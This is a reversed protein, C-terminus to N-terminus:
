DYTPNNYLTVDITKDALYDAVGSTINNDLLMKFMRLYMMQARGMAMIGTYGALQNGNYDSMNGWKNGNKVLPWNANRESFNKILDLKAKNAEGGCRIPGGNNKDDMYWYGRTYNHDMPLATAMTAAEVAPLKGAGYATTNNGDLGILLLTSRMAIELAQSVNYSVGGVSITADFPIYNVDVLNTSRTQTSGELTGTTTSWVDLLKVYETAFDGITVVATGSQNVAISISEGSATSVTVTGKRSGANPNNSDSIMVVSEDDYNGAGATPNLSIWSDETSATWEALAEFRFQQATAGSAAFADLTTTVARLESPQYLGANLKMNACDEKSGTDMNNDLLYKYFRAMLLFTRELSCDGKYNRALTAPVGRGDTPYGCLNAWVSKSQAYDYQRNTNNQLFDYEVFINQFAGGNENYPNAGWPYGTITPIPDSLSGSNKDLNIFGLTAVELADAKNFSFKGVNVTYDEPVYHGKFTITGVTKSTANNSEWVDLVKVFEQAFDKMTISTKRAGDLTMTLKNLKGEDFVIGEGTATITKTYSSSEGYLKVVLSEGPAIVTGWTNFWVDINGAPLPTAYKISVSSLAGTFDGAVATALNYLRAGALNKGAASIEVSYIAEPVSEVTLKNLATARRYYATWPNPVSTAGQEPKLVMLFSAPDYSTATATQQNPLVIKTKLPNSNKVASAPYFGGFNYAEATAPTFDFGFSAVAQGNAADASANNSKIMNDNGDYCYLLLYEGKGWLVSTGDLYTKTAEDEQLVVNFKDQPGAVPASEKQCSALALLSLAAAGFSLFKKM